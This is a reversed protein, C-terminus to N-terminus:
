THSENARHSSSAAPGSAAAATYASASPCKASHASFSSLTITRRLSPCLLECFHLDREYM